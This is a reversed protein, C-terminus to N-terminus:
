GVTLVAGGTSASLDVLGTLKVVQDVVDVSAAAAIFDGNGNADDVLYTNGGYQFWAVQNAVAGNAAEALIIAESLTSAAAINVATANFTIAAGFTIMDGAVLDTITTVGFAGVSTATGLQSIAAGVNVTDAGGGLTLTDAGFSANGVHGAASQTNVFITDAAAGGKITLGTEVLGAHQLFHTSFPLTVRPPQLQQVM